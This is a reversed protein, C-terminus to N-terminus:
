RDHPSVESIVRGMERPNIATDLHEEPCKYFGRRFVSADEFTERKM